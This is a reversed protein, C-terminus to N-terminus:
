ATLDHNGVIRWYDDRDVDDVSVVNGAQKRIDAVIGPIDFDGAHDGLTISVERALRDTM